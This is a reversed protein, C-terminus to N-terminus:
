DGPGPDLWQWATGFVRGGMVGDEGISPRTPLPRSPRNVVPLDAPAPIAPVVIPEGVASPASASPPTATATGGGLQGVIGLGVTVGLVAVWVVV